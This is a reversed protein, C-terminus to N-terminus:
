AINKPLFFYGFVISLVLAFIYSLGNLAGFFFVILTFFTIITSIISGIIRTNKKEGSREAIFRIFLFLIFTSLSTYVILTVALDIWFPINYGEFLLRSYKRLKTTGLLLDLVITPITVVLQFKLIVSILDLFLVTFKKM